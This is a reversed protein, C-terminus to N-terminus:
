RVRTSMTCSVIVLFVRLEKWAGCCGLFGVGFMFAGAVILVISASSLLGAIDVQDPNVPLRNLIGSLGDDDYKVYLGIGLTVAGLIQFLLPITTWNDCLWHVRFINAYVGWLGVVTINDHREMPRKDSIYFQPNRMRRSHRSRKGRWRPNAIGVHM